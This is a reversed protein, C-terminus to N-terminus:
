RRWGGSEWALPIEGGPRTCLEVEGEGRGVPGGKGKKLAM